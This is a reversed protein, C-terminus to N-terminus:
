RGDRRIPGVAVVSRDDHEGQLRLDLAVLLGGLASDQAQAAALARLTHEPRRYLLRAMGDTMALVAQGDAILHQGWHSAARASPVAATVQEDRQGVPTLWTVTSAAIDAIAVECDGVTCWSARTGVTVHDVAVVALTSAPRRQRNRSEEGAPPMRLEDARATVNEETLLDAIQEVLWDAIQHWSPPVGTGPNTLKTPWESMLAVAHRATLASAVHSLRTSGLGDAVAAIVAGDATPDAAFALNDERTIGAQDHRAGLVAGALVFLRDTGAQELAYASHHSDLPRPLRRALDKRQVKPYPQTVSPSEAATSDASAALIQAPSDLAPMTTKTGTTRANSRDASVYDVYGLLGSAALAIVGSILGVMVLHMSRSTWGAGTCAGAVALFIIIGIILIDRNRRLRTAEPLTPRPNDRPPTRQHM